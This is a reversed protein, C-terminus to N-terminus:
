SRELSTIPPSHHHPSSSACSAVRSFSSNFIVNWSELLRREARGNPASSSRLAALAFLFLSLMVCAHYGCPVFIARM